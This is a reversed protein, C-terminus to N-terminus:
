PSHLFHATHSEVLAINRSPIREGLRILLLQSDRDRMLQAVHPKPVQDRHLPPIIKPQVLGKRSKHRVHAQSIRLPKLVVSQGPLDENPILLPAHPSVHVRGSM